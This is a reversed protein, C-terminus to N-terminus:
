WGYMQQAAVKSHVSKRALKQLYGSDQAYVESLYSLQSKERQRGVGHYATKDKVIANDIALQIKEQFAEADVFIFEITEDNQKMPAVIPQIIRVPSPPPPAILKKKPQPLFYKKTQSHFSPKFFSNPNTTGCTVDSSDDYDEFGEFESDSSEYFIVTM